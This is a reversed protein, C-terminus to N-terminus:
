IEPPYSELGFRWVSTLYLVIHYMGSGMVVALWCCWSPTLKLHISIHDLTPVFVSDVNDVPGLASVILIDIM